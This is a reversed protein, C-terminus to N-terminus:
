INEYEVSKSFVLKGAKVVKNVLNVGFHYPLEAVSHADWIICDGKKNVELSGVEKEVGIAMASHLTAAILAEKPTMKLQLCALTLMMQMSESMCTGPNFDTAIAVPLGNEIMRRAPAYHINALFFDAGPLLVPVVKAKLLREDLHEPTYELHDASIAGVEVALEAGGSNQLQDAHVKPRLGMKKGALLVNESEFRSFVHDECFVDIFTALDNETVAPIMENIVLSIYGERDFRFEDPIEHAGLFTSILDCHHLRQARKIVELSKIEDKLSLGYGSKAEVTTTGFEIFRDLRKCLAIYLVEDSAARLDRVSSRIGGGSKAIDVYSAGGVRMEFELERTNNFVPHTHCDVFGPTVLHGAANIRSIEQDNKFKSNIQSEEGIEVIIGNRIVLAGKNLYLSQWSAQVGPSSIATFIKANYILCQSENSM